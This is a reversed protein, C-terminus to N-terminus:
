ASLLRQRRDASITGIVRAVYDQRNRLHARPFRSVQWGMATLENDRASDSLWHEYKGGHHEYGDTEINYRIDTYAFDMRFRKGQVTIWVQFEPMPLGYRRCLDAMMPELLSDVDQEGLSRRDLVEGLVGAGRRGRGGLRDRWARVGAMTVIKRSNLDNLALAVVDRGAVAGLDVLLRLPNTTPIGDKVVVQDATLDGSRHVIVGPPNPCRSRAVTVEIPPEGGPLEVGWLWAACRHSAVGGTALCAAMLRQRWTTPAGASRYVGEHVAILRAIRLLHAIEHRTYGVQRMQHYTVLAHQHAGARATGDRKEHTL